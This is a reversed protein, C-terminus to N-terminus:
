DSHRRKNHAALGVNNDFFLECISCFYYRPKEPKPVLQEVTKQIIPKTLYLLNQLKKEKSKRKRNMDLIARCSGAICRQRPIVSGDDSIIPPNKKGCKPCEIVEITIVLSL